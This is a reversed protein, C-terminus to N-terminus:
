KKRLPKLIMLFVIACIFLFQVVPFSSQEIVKEKIINIMGEFKGANILNLIVYDKYLTIFEFPATLVSFILIIFLWGEKKISLKSSIVFLILFVIYFPYSFINITFIPSFTLFIPAFDVNQYEPKITMEPEFFQYIMLYKAIYSGSWIIFSLVFLFLFFKSIKSLNEM